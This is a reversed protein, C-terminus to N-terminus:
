RSSYVTSYKADVAINLTLFASQVVDQVFGELVTVVSNTEAFLHTVCM